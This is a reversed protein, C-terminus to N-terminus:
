DAPTLTVCHVSVCGAGTKAVRFELEPEPGPDHPVEFVLEHERSRLIEPSASHGVTARGPLIQRIEFHVQATAEQQVEFFVRYRGPRLPITPRFVAAGDESSSLEVVTAQVAGGAERSRSCSALAGSGQCVSWVAPLRAEPPAQAIDLVTAEPGDYAMHTWPKGSRCEAEQWLRLQEPPTQDKHLVVYRIGRLRLEGMLAGAQEASNTALQRANLTYYWEPMRSTFVNLFPRWGTAASAAFREAMTWNRTEGPRTLPFDAIPGPPLPDIVARYFTEEPLRADFYDCRRANEAFVVAVVLLALAPGWRPGLREGVRALAWGAMLGCPWLAALMMRAPCRLAQFGPLFRFLFQYAHFQDTALCVLVPPLVLAFTAWGPSQQRGRWALLLASLAVLTWPAYGFYGTKEGDQRTLFEGWQPLWAQAEEWSWCGWRRGADRYPGALPLLAVGAVAGAVALRLLFRREALVRPRLFALTVLMVGLVVAAMYGLYMSLYFQAALCLGGLLAWRWQQRQAMQVSALFLLPTPFHPWLHFHGLHILRIFGFTFLVATLVAPICAHLLHRAVFYAILFDLGVVVLFWLNFALISQGSLLYFPAFLVADGLMHESCALLNPEPYLCPLQWLDHWSQSYQLAAVDWELVGVFMRTDNHGPLHTRWRGGGGRFIVASCLIFVAAVV